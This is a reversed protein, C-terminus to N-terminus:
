RTTGAILEKCDINGGCSRPPFSPHHGPENPPLGLLGLFPRIQVVQDHKNRATGAEPAIVWGTRWHPKGVLGLKRNWPSDYDGAGSWGWGGTRLQRITVALTMGPEAGRIAIPGCMAHGADLTKDRPEFLAPKEAFPDDQEFLGWGADLTRFRVTDGPDITLIPEWNRSFRGHLNERTPEVSYTAM